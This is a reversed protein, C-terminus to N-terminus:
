AQAACEADCGPRDIGPEGPLNLQKQWYVDKTRGILRHYGMSRLRDAANFTTKGYDKAPTDIDDESEYRHDTNLKEVADYFDDAYEFKTQALQQLKLLLVRLDRLNRAPLTPPIRQDKNAGGGLRITAHIPLPVKNLQNCFIDVTFFSFPTDDALIPFKTPMQGVYKGTLGYNWHLWTEKEKIPNTFWSNQQGFFQTMLNEMGPSSLAYDKPSLDDPDGPEAELLINAIEISNM